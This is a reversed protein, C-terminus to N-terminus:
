IDRLRYSNTQSWNHLLVKFDANVHWCQIKLHDKQHLFSKCINWLREDFRILPRILSILEHPSRLRTVALSLLNVKFYETPSSWMNSLWVTATCLLSPHMRISFIVCRESDTSLSFECIQELFRNYVTFKLSPTSKNRRQDKDESAHVSPSLSQCPLLSLWDAAEETRLQGIPFFEVAWSKM